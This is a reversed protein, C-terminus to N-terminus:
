AIIIVHLKNNFIALNEEEIRLEVLGNGSGNDCDFKKCSSLSTTSDFFKWDDSKTGDADDENSSKRGAYVSSLGTASLLTQFLFLWSWEHKEFCPGVGAEKQKSIILRKM